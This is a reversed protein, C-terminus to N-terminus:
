RRPKRMNNILHKNWHRSVGPSSEVCFVILLLIILTLWWRDRLRSDKLHQVRDNWLQMQFSRDTMPNNYHTTNEFWGNGDCVFAFVTCFFALYTVAWHRVKLCYPFQTDMNQIHLCISHWQSLHENIPVLTYGHYQPTGRNCNKNRASLAPKVRSQSSCITLGTRERWLALNTQLLRSNPNLVM